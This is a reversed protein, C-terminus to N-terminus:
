PRGAGTSLRTFRFGGIEFGTVADGDREFSLCEGIWRGDAVTFDTPSETSALELDVPVGGRIPLRVVLHDGKTAVTVPDVMSPLSDTQYWGTLAAFQPPPAGAASADHASPVRTPEAPAAHLAVSLAEMALASAGSFSDNVLAVVTAECTPVVMIVSSFGHLGGEHALVVHGDKRIAGWGLCTGSEWDSTVHEPHHMAAMTAPSLVGDIAGTHFAGWRL